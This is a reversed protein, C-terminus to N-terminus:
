ALLSVCAHALVARVKREARSKDNKSVIAKAQDVAQRRSLAHGASGKPTLRLCQILGQWCQARIFACRAQRIAVRSSEAEQKVMKNM